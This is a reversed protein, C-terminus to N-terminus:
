PFINEQPSSHPHAHYSVTVSPRIPGTMCHPPHLPELAPPCSTETAWLQPGHCWCSHARPPLLQQLYVSVELVGLISVQTEQDLLLPDSFATTFALDDTYMHKPTPNAEPVHTIVPVLAPIGVTTIVLAHILTQSWIWTFVHLHSGSDYLACGFRLIRPPQTCTSPWQQWSYTCTAIPM